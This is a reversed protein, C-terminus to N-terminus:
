LPTDELRQVGLYFLFDTDADSIALLDIQTQFAAVSLRRGAPDVDMTRMWGGQLRRGNGVYWSVVAAYILERTTTPYERQNLKQLRAEWPLNAVQASLCRILRWCPPTTVQTFPRHQDWTVSVGLHRRARQCLEEVSYGLDAILLHTERCAGLTVEDFPITALTTLAAQVAPNLGGFAVANEPVGYFGDGMIARAQRHAPPEVIKKPSLLKTFVDGLPDGTLDRTLCQGLLTGLSELHPTSTPDREVILAVLETYIQAASSGKALLIDRIQTISAPTTM